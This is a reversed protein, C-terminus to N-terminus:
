KEPIYKLADLLGEELAQEYTLHVSSAQNGYVIEYKGKGKFLNILWKM